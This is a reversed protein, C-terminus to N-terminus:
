YVIMVLGQKILNGQSYIKYPYNGPAAKSGKYQGDWSHDTGKEHYIVEGWRNFVSIEINPYSDTNFLKWSDNQGDNNPTFVTPVHLVKNSSDPEESHPLDCNKVQILIETSSQAIPFCTNAFTATVTIKSQYDTKSDPLKYQFEASSFSPQVIGDVAWKYIADASAVSANFIVEDGGCPSPKDLTLTITESQPTNTGKFLADAEAPNISRNYLHVDDIIADVAQGYHNRAGITAKVTGVGFFASSGNTPNSCILKGDVYFYYNNADKSLVIHYWQNIQPLFGTMCRVNYDLGIYSGNSFGTLVGTYNNGILIDQDGAASGVSFIFFAQDNVPLSRPYVWLSYSFENTELERAGIEIYDDVGDFEYASNANGFRDNTLTAGNVVGDNNRDSLDNANGSFPYCGILGNNLNVQAFTNPVIFCLTLYLYLKM